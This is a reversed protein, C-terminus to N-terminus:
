LREAIEQKIKSWTLAPRSAVVSIDKIEVPRNAPLNFMLQYRRAVYAKDSLDFSTQGVYWNDGLDQIINLQQSDFKESTKDVFMALDLDSVQYARYTVTFTAQELPRPTHWDFYVPSTQLIVTQKDSQFRDSPNLPLFYSTPKSFNARAKFHGTVILDSALFYTFSALFILSFILRWIKQYINIAM